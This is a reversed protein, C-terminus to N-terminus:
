KQIGGKKHINKHCDPCLTVGNDTDWLEKCELAKKLSDIKNELIIKKLSKLHHANLKGGHKMCSKCEFNDRIYITLRWVGYEPLKRIMETIGLKFGNKTASIKERTEISHKFGLHSNNGKAFRGKNDRKEMM